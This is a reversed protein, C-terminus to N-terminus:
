GAQILQRYTGPVDKMEDHTGRQVVQGRDLVIIEDCDRITSLRHAVIVCSCGRRRLNQDIRKETEADLASTAEDMILITPNNVLARAIELRQRQGGSLNAAGERLESSYGGPLALITDHILADQCAKVLQSDPITTDWLTLNDRVTGGFLFIDQEVAALSNALILRPINERPIGDFLVQGSWPQYLGMLLKAVTSKGSGSGGVLAIRQGPELSISLDRILPAEIKAYGFTVAKFSIQGELRFSEALPAPYNGHESFVESASRNADKALAVDTPNQLADDLRKLDGELEQLTSNFGVLTNVPQLFSHMLSQFAVLMGISLHGEMVRFGGVILILMSTLATLLPPLVGITQNILGLSQQANIAKAYYGAWRAFFDSELAASKLTEISQLGAISVGDVKGQDQTLRMHTDKRKRAVWQLALVNLLAFFIGILTLLWDYAFMILGYFVIMVSDIITKALEGSLTEAVRTNLKVRSGIEGAFRQTYFSTPLQLIHWLFGSSLSTALKVNLQRLNRYQLLTLVGQLVTTVLMGLILPRLWDTRNEVLVNDVFVQSFVPIALGPIVLLFGALTGYIVAAWSGSLRDVLAGTLSPKRGAQKFDPGPEMVLTVGTYAQDFEELSAKRPGTAPDNLYVINKDFGEVVLFHNFNWFVIFPPQLIKLKKLSKKFGKAQMGYQRAVKLLNSAKSGDRSVGCAERLEALPVIRKYYALVIALSAAGCEVEEMQIVTPTKTRRPLPRQSSADEKGKTITKEQSSAIM